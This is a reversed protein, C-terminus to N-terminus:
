WVGARDSQAIEMTRGEEIVDNACGIAGSFESSLTNASCALVSTGFNCLAGKLNAIFDDFRVNRAPATVLREVGL